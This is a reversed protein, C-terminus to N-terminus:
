ESEGLIAHILEALDRSYIPRGSSNIADEVAELKGQLELVEECEHFTDGPLPASCDKCHWIGHSFVANRGLKNKDVM